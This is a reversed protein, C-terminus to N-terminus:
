FLKKIGIIISGPFKNYRITEFYAITQNYLYIEKRRFNLIDKGYLKLTWNNKLKYEFKVDLNTYNNFINDSKFMQLWFDGEMRVKNRSYITKIEHKQELITQYIDNYEKAYHNLKYTYGLEIDKWPNYKIGFAQMYGQMNVMLVKSMQTQTSNWSTSLKFTINESAWKWNIDNRISLNNQSEAQSFSQVFFGNKLNFEPYIAGQTFNYNVISYINLGSALNFYLHSLNIGTTKNIGGLKLSGYKVTNEDIYEYTNYCLNYPLEQQNHSLNLLFFHLPNFSYRVTLDSNFLLNGINITDLRHKNYVSEIRYIGMWHGKEYRINLEANTNWLIHQFERNDILTDPSHIYMNLLILRSGSQGEIEWNKGKKVYGLDFGINGKKERKNQNIFSQEDRERNISLGNKINEFLINTNIFYGQNKSVSKYYKLVPALTFNQNRKTFSNDKEQLALQGKYYQDNTSLDTYFPIEVNINGKKNQLVKKWRFKSYIYPFAIEKTQTGTQSVSIGDYFRQVNSERVRYAYNFMTAFNITNLKSKNIELNTLLVNDYNEQVDKGPIFGEPILKSLDGNTEKLAQFLDGKLSLFDGSSMNPDGINNARIFTTLGSKETVRYLNANTKYRYKYGGLLEVDGNIQKLAEDTLRVDMAVKNSNSLLYQENFPRYHKIIRISKVDDAQIGETALKHQDSLIDKGELLIKDVRKGNYLIDGKKGVELGPMNNLIDGLTQTSENQYAKANYNITDGKVVVSIREAKIVVENLLEEHRKLLISISDKKLMLSDIVLYKTDFGLYSVSLVMGERVINDIFWKGDEGSISFGVMSSSDALYLIISAGILEENDGKVTGKLTQAYSNNQLIFLSLYIMFLYKLM